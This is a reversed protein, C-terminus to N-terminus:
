EEDQLTKEVQGETMMNAMQLFENGGEYPNMDEKERVENPSMAKINVMGKYYEMRAKPDVQLLKEYNNHIYMGAQREARTLLKRQREQKFREALPQIAHKLYSISKEVMFNYGGEGEINLMSSPIKFWRAIDRVGEAKAEIFKSQEPSLQIPRYKLGEDLIVARHPDGSALASNWAKRLRTKASDDIDKESELVSLGVGKDNYANAGFEQAALPIGMSEAAYHIISKGRIGDFSFGPVHVIESANYTSSGVKYFLKGQYELVQVQDANLHVEGTVAGANNRQILGFYDGKTYVSVVSLFDSMFATLRDNAEHRLVYDLPHDSLRKRDTGDFQYVSKPLIAYSEAVLTLAAYFASIKMSSERNVKRGAQTTALSGFLFPSLLSNGATRKEFISSVGQTLLSM